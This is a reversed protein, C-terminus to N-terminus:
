IYFSTFDGGGGEGRSNDDELFAARNRVRGTAPLLDDDEDEGAGAVGANKSPSRTESAGEDLVRDDDDDDLLDDYEKAESPM